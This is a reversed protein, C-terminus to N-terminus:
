MDLYRILGKSLKEFPLLKTGGYKLKFLKANADNKLPILEDGHPGSLRSGFMYLAKTADIKTGDLYDYVYMKDIKDSILKHKLFYDQHFYVQMMAKVSIFKVNKGNKLVAECAFKPYKNLDLSYVMDLKPAASSNVEWTKNADKAFAFSIILLLSLVIKM